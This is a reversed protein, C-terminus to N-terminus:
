RPRSWLRGGALLVYLRGADLEVDMIDDAPLGGDDRMWSAGLDDSRWIGDVTLAVLTKGDGVVRRVGTEGVTSQAWTGDPQQATVISGITVVPPSACTAVVPWSTYSDAGRKWREGGDDSRWLCVARQREDYTAAVLSATRQRASPALAQLGVLPLVGFPAALREWTQGGNETKLMAADATLGAWGSGDALFAMHTVRGDEGTVVPEWSAGKDGSRYLGDSSAALLTGGPAVFIGTSPLPVSTLPTWGGDPGCTVPPSNVGAVMVVGDGVLLRRLDHLPAPPLEEWATGGDKSVLVGRSTGAYVRTDDGALSFAREDSVSSWGEPAGVDTSLLIGHNESGLLLQGGPLAALASTCLDDPLGGVPSWTALNDSSRLLRGVEPAALMAGDALSAVASFATGETPACSRWARGGNPSRYLGAATAAVAAEGAGWAVALVERSQLGFNSTQWSRGGDSTRLIGSGLTAALATGDESFTRSLAIATVTSTGDPVATPQWTRGRDLSRAIGGAGGALLCGDGYALATVSRLPLGSTLPTWGVADAYRAVGGFGGAWLGEPGCLLTLVPTPLEIPPYRHWDNTM